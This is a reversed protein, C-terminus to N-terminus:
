LYKRKFAKYGAQIGKRTPMELGPQIVYILNFPEDKVLCISLGEVMFQNVYISDNESKGRQKARYDTLCVDDVSKVTYMGPDGSSVQLRILESAWPGIYYFLVNGGTTM